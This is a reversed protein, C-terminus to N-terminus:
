PKTVKLQQVLPLITEQWDDFTIPGIKKYMILGNQDLLYSEPAGYVGFDIGTRGSRDVAIDTYPNGLENLWALADEPKDKYNLGYVKVANSEAIELLQQHEVRCSVCWSAWVNLLSVDGKLDELSIRDALNALRPLNFEPAPKGILPSTVKTPDLTLGVAFVIVLLVFLSLPLLYRWM